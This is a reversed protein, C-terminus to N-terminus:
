GSKGLTDIAIPKQDGAQVASEIRKTVLEDLLQDPGLPPALHFEVGPHAKALESRATALDRTLHVGMSLFYPIMLVRTAGREVCLRGATPIDPQAFELFAPEVIQATQRARLREVLARLEDNAEDRRSGHAIMLVATIEEPPSM